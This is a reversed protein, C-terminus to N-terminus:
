QTVEAPAEAEDAFAVRPAPAETVDNPLDAADASSNVRARVRLCEVQKGDAGRCTTGYLTIRQGSWKDVLTERLTAAILKMNTKNAVMRKGLAKGAVSRLHLVVKEEKRGGELTLTEREAHDIVVTVDKGHLDHAGVYETPYCLRYHGTIIKGNNM